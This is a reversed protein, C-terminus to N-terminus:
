GSAPNEGRPRSELRRVRRRLDRYTLRVLGQTDRHAADNERRYREVREDLVVHAEALSKVDERTAEILVGNRRVQEEVRDLRERTEAFGRHLEERTEALAGHLHERTEALASRWEEGAEALASRWEARTEALGRRMEERMEAFGRRLEDRLAGLEENM